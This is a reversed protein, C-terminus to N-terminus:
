QQHENEIERQPEMGKGLQAQSGVPGRRIGPDSYSEVFGKHQTLSKLTQGGDSRGGVVEVSLGRRPSGTGHLM